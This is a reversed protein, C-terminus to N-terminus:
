KETLAAPWTFTWGVLSGCAGDVELLQDIPQLEAADAKRDEDAEGVDQLMAEALNVGGELGGDGLM